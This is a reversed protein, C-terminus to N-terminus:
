TQLAIDSGTIQSLRTWQFLVAGPIISPILLKFLESSSQPRFYLPFWVHLALRTADIAGENSLQLSGERPLAQNDHVLDGYQAPLDTILIHDLCM